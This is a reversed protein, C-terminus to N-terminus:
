RHGSPRRSCRRGLAAQRDAQRGDSRARLRPRSPIEVAVGRVLPEEESPRLHRPFARSASALRNTCTSGCAGMPGLAGPHSRCGSAKWSARWWRRPRCTARARGAPRSRRVPKPSSRRAPLIFRTLAISVRHSAEKGDRDADEDDGAARGEAQETAPSPAGLVERTGGLPCGDVVDGVDCSAFSRGVVAGLRAGTSVSGGGASDVSTVSSVRGGGGLRGVTSVGSAGAPRRWRGARAAPGNSGASPLAQEREEGPALEVLLGPLLDLVGQEGRVEADLGRGFQDVLQAGPDLDLVGRVLGARRQSWSSRSARTSGDISRDTALERM